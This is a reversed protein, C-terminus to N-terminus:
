QSEHRRENNTVYALFLLITSAAISVGIIGSAFTDYLGHMMAVLAIGVVITPWRGAKRQYAIAIFWGAIGAWVAHLLPLTMFRVVQTLVMSGYFEVLNPLDNSILRSLEDGDVLGLWNTSQHISDAFQMASVEASVSWYRVSYSVVESLAFGFGSMMGLFLGNRTSLPESDRTAFLLLPLAKCTEELVGVVFIFGFMRFLISSEHFNGEVSAYFTRILPLKQALLLLPVGIVVTFAAWKLGRRWVKGSPHLLGHFYSAWFFCFYAGLLWVSQQFNWAFAEKLIVLLLPMLGFIMLWWFAKTRFIRGTIIVKLPLLFAYDLSRFQDQVSKVTEKINSGEMLGFPGNFSGSSGQAHGFSSSVLMELSTWGADGEFRGLDTPLFEGTRLGERVKTESFPGYEQKDRCIFLAM